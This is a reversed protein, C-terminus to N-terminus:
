STCIQAFCVSARTRDAAGDCSFSSDHSASPAGSSSDNAFFGSARGATQTQRASRTEPPQRFVPHASSAQDGKPMDGTPAAVRAGTVATAQTAQQELGGGRGLNPEHSYVRSVSRRCVCGWPAGMTSGCGAHFDPQRPRRVTVRDQPENLLHREVGAVRRRPVAEAHDRDRGPVARPEDPCDRELRAPPLQPRTTSNRRNM